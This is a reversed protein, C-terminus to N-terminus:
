IKASPFTVSRSVNVRSGGSSSRRLSLANKSGENVQLPRFSKPYHRANLPPSTELFSQELPPQMEQLLFSFGPSAQLPKRLDRSTEGARGNVKEVNSIVSPHGEVGHFNLTV